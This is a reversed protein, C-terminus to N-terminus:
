LPIHAPLVLKSVKSSTVFDVQQIKFTKVHQFFANLYELGKMHIGNARM